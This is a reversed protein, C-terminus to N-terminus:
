KITMTYCLTIDPEIPFRHYKINTEHGESPTTATTLCGSDVIKHLRKNDLEDITQDM